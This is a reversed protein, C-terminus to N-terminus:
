DEEGHAVMEHVEAYCSRAGDLWDLVDRCRKALALEEDPNEGHDRQLAAIAQTHKLGRRLLVALDHQSLEINFGASPHKIITLNRM